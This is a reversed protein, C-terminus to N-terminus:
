ETMRILLGALAYRNKPNGYAIVEILTELCEIDGSPLLVELANVVLKAAEQSTLLYPSTQELLTEDPLTVVFEKGKEQKIFQLLKDRYVKEQKLQYLALAAHARVLPAGAQELKEKLLAVMKDSMHNSLLEVLLPILPSKQEKEFIIKALSLFDDEPLELAKTLVKGKFQLTLSELQPNKKIQQSYSAIGKWHVLAKGPSHVTYFGIDKETESFLSRFFPIATTSKLKLLAFNANLCVDFDPDTRLQSLADIVSSNEPIESLISIAFLNKEKAAMLLPNLAEKEGLDYLTKLATLELEKSKRASLKRMTAVAETDHLKGLAFAAAEEVPYGPHNALSRISDLLDDRNANAAHILTAVRIKYNEESLLQKLFKTTAPNDIHVLIEPFIVKAEDPVKGYFSQLHDVVVGENKEALLLAAELRILLFPSSLAEKILNTAEDEQYRDLFNLSAIQLKPNDSRIAEKLVPLSLKHLAVGAGMVSLLQVDEEDSKIGADLIRLGSDQLLKFNHGEKRAEALYVTFAQTIEGKHVLYHIHSEVDKSFEGYLPFSFLILFLIYKKM